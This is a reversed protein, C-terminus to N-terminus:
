GRSAERERERQVRLVADLGILHRPRKEAGFQRRESFLRGSRLLWRISAPNVGLLRAASRLTVAIRGCSDVYRPVSVNQTTHM